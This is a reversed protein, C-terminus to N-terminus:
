YPTYAAASPPQSAAAARAATAINKHGNYMWLVPRDIYRPIHYMTIKLYYTASLRGQPVHNIHTAAYMRWMCLSYSESM